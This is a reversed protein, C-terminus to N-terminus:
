RSEHIVQEIVGGGLVEEGRYLVVAQGPTISEQPEEFDIRLGGEEPIIRCTSAKKRYRIKAEAKDPWSDALLNLDAARLGSALLDKKEGVVVRNDEADVSVVYLPAPASIGLGSRQGVTFSVIGDHRGRERGETDVIRGPQLPGALDRIFQRYGKRPVFCIDQSETKHAVPVGAEIALARVEGKTRDSLPFLVAPLDGRLIPYLFYTQDKARDKSKLLRYTDGAKEIKAYHGTALFEFGMSRALGLLRGFKLYRNCDICPNPTRGRRYEQVFRDIVEEKMDRAFDIVHHSIRLHECVRRADDVADRGCCRSRDGDDVIGLCMTVGTVSYGADRLILAAVSSDVGGSMAVLVKRKM